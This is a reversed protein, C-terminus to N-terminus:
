SRDKKVAGWGEYLIQSRCGQLSRLDSQDLFGRDEQTVSIRAEISIAALDKRLRQRADQVSFFDYFKGTKLKATHSLEANTYPTDQTFQIAGIRKQIRSTNKSPAGPLGFLISHQVQLRYTNDGQRLASSTLRRYFNYNVIWQQDNSDRLNMSYVLNLKPTVDKGLTLRATPQAENAILNPEIKVQSLGIARGVESTLSSGM